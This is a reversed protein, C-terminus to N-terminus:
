PTIIANSLITRAFAELSYCRRPSPMAPPHPSATLVGRTHMFSVLAIITLYADILVTDVAPLPGTLSLPLVKAWEHQLEKQTQEEQM